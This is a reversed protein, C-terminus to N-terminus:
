RTGQIQGTLIKVAQDLQVDQQSKQSIEVKVDPEIGKKNIDTGSPTLYKATTLKLGANGPLPFVTQVLGKGFTKTGVLTGAKRDKIAGSVIESASASGENVLVALPMKLEHGAAEYVEEQGNRVVVRVVPGQPVFREAVKISAGFDGGPNNRLDLIIAKFGKASLEQLTKNLEQDTNTSFQFIQIYAIQPSGELVRGQVTPINILQRKITVRIVQEGRQLALNVETGPEGRMLSVATDSDMDKTEQGNIEIIVDDQKLGAAEAPTGKFPPAMITLKNQDKQGVFVGIGGFTGRIQINLEQFQKPNMYVSYPDKLSDVVGATAGDILQSGNVRELGQSRVLLAAKALRGLEDYYATVLVTLSGTVLLSIIIVVSLLKRLVGNRQYLCLVKGLVANLLGM